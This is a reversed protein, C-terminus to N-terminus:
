LLILFPLHCLLQCQYNPRCTIAQVCSRLQAQPPAQVDLIIPISSFWTAFEGKVVEIIHYKIIQIIEVKALTWVYFCHGLM